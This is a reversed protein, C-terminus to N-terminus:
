RIQGAIRQRCCRELWRVSSRCLLLREAIERESLGQQYHLDYFKRLSAPLRAVRVHLLHDLELDHAPRATSGAFARDGRRTRAQRRIFDVAKHSAVQFIWSAGVRVEPEAKWLAIRLEQLLDELDEPGLGYQYAVRAMVRAPYPSELWQAATAARREIPPIGSMRNGEIGSTASPDLVQSVGFSRRETKSYVPVRFWERKAEERVRLPLIEVEPKRLV